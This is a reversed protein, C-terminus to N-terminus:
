DAQYLGAKGSRCLAKPKDLGSPAEKKVDSKTGSGTEAAFSMGVAAFCLIFLCTGIVTITKM